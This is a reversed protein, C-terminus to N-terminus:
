RVLSRYRSSLVNLETIGLARATVMFTAAGGAAVFLLRASSWLLSSTAPVLSLLGAVLGAMVVTAACARGLWRAPAVIPVSRHLRRWAFPLSVSYSGIWAAALGPAGVLPYL